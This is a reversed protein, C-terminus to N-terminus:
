IMNMHYDKAKSSAESVVHIIESHCFSCQVSYICRLLLLEDIYESQSLCKLSTLVLYMYGPQECMQFIDTHKFM